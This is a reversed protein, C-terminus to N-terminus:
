WSYIRALGNGGAGGAGSNTGNQSAGGGGGGSVMVGNEGPNTSLPYATSTSTSWTVGDDSYIGPMTNATNSGIFYRSGSYVIARYTDTTGDTRTTWTNGDSSTYVVSSAALVFQSGAFLVYGSTTLTTAVATWSAGGNTSRRAFPSTSATAVLVSGSSAVRLWNGASVTTVVTWTIADTSTLSVGSDGVAIWRTGDHIVHNLTNGNISSRMTWTILDTSTEIIGGQGVAVYTGANHSISRLSSNVSGVATWNTLNTSTRVTSGSVAVWQYGDYLFNQLQASTDILSITWSIGDTSTAIYGGNGGTTAVFTGNGFAVAEPRDGVAVFQRFFTAGGDAGDGFQSRSDSTNFPTSEGSATLVGGGRGGSGGFVSFGGSNITGSIASPSGAGGGYVSSRGTSSNAGRIVENAPSSINFSIGNGSNGGNATNTTAVRGGEGGQGGGATLYSGFSSAGGTFGASGNTDDTTAGAAGAGGLGVTVEVTSPLDSAKFMRYFYAGGGGGSGGSCDTNIAGRRGSGGGAGAGWLEVAVFEADPKTWTGSSTFEQLNAGGVSPLFQSFNSM